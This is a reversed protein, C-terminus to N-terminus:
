LASPVTSSSSSEVMSLGMMRFEFPVIGSDMISQWFYVALGVMALRGNQLEGKQVRKQDQWQTPYLNAPDFGLNGAFYDDNEGGRRSRRDTAHSLEIAAMFGLLTGWLTPSVRYVYDLNNNVMMMTSYEEDYEVLELDMGWYEALVRDYLETALVFTAAQLYLYRNM